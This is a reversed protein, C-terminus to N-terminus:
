QLLRYEWLVDKVKIPVGLIKLSQAAQERSSGTGFNKGGVIFDGPQISAAFGPSVAELCHIALEEPPLKIYTGPALVDTNVDDGFKWVRGTM